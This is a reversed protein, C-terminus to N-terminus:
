RGPRIGTLKSRDDEALDAFAAWRERAGCVHALAPYSLFQFAAPM